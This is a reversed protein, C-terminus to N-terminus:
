YSLAAKVACVELTLKYCPAPRKPDGMDPKRAEALRTSASVNWGAGSGDSVM